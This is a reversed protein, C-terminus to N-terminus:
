LNFLINTIKNEKTINQYSSAATINKLIAVLSSADYCKPIGSGCDVVENAKCKISPCDNSCICFNENSECIGNGCNISGIYFYGVKSSALINNNLDTAEADLTHIGLTDVSKEGYWVNSSSNLELYERLGSPHQVILKSSKVYSGEDDLSLYFKFNGGNETYIPEIKLYKLIPPNNDVKIEKSASNKNGAMDQVYFTLTRSGDKVLSSNFSGDCTIKKGGLQEVCNISSSFNSINFYVTSNLKFEDTAIIQPHFVDKLYLEPSTITLVPKTRDINLTISTNILNNLINIVNVTIKYIGEEMQDTDLLYYYKGGAESM